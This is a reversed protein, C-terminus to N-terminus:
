TKALKKYMKRKKLKLAEPNIEYQKAIKKREGPKDSSDFDVAKLNKEVVQFYLCYDPLEAHSRYGCLEVFIWVIEHFSGVISPLYFIHRLFSLYICASIVLNLVPFEQLCLSIDSTAM